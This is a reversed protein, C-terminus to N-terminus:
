IAQRIHTINDGTKGGCYRNWVATAEPHGTSVIKDSRFVANGIVLAGLANTARFTLCVAGDKMRLAREIRFSDPNHLSRRLVRINLVDQRWRLDEPDPAKKEAVPAPSPQAAPPPLPSPGALWYAAGAAALVALLGRNM